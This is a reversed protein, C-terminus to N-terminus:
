NATSSSIFMAMIKKFAKTADEVQDDRIEFILEDHVQLLLKADFAKEQIVEPVRIMARKMIDAATGQLPANIAQREAFGRIAQNTDMIGRIYCRRGFMTEVYGLERAENKKAEMFALIGPYRKTYIDIYHSAETKSIKLQRALGFGSIGYIIGFNIAKAKRRMVSDVQDLPVGFVEAATSEHIDKGDKFAQRLTPIDAMHAILRLEIQSYDLSALKYGKRAVFAARIKRGEETRIPINQLNPNTSSPRGPVAITQGYSTHVRGTKKNIIM